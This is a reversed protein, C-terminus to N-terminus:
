RRPKYKRYLNDLDGPMLIPNYELELLTKVFIENIEITGYLSKSKSSKIQELYQTKNKEFYDMFDLFDSQNIKNLDKLGKLKQIDDIPFVYYKFYNTTDRAVSKILEKKDVKLESFYMEYGIDRKVFNILSFVTDLNYVISYQGKNVKVIEDVKRGKSKGKRPKFLKWKPISDFLVKSVKDFHARSEMLKFSKITDSVLQHVFIWDPTSQYLGAELDKKFKQGVSLNVTTLTLILTIIVKKRV